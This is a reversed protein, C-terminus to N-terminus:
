IKEFDHMCFQKFKLRSSRSEINSDKAVIVILLMIKLDPFRARLLM